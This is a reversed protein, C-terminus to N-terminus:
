PSPGLTGGSTTGPAAATSAAYDYGLATANLTEAVTMPFPPLARHLLTAPVGAQPHRLQWLRWLRDIMAHHAWFIPDYAATYIDSMTGGVWVHVGNHVDELQAQFDLFDTLRLLEQVVHQGPLPPAGPGGPERVTHATGGPERGAPQIQSGVLPNPQGDPAQDREYALPLGQDHHISWDWWTLTAGPVQDQLAKEFFYLYARHWALFLPSGHTCYMPLPLGHIGAHHQYGRDDGIAMVARFAQRLQALQGATLLTASRRHKLAVAPHQPSATGTAM